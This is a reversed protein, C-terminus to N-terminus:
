LQELVATYVQAKATDKIITGFLFLRLSCGLKLVLNLFPRQWLPKHKSWIYQYGKFEGLIAHASSSSASGFHVITAAPVIGVDWHHNAARMCFEVDEGYMFINGDLSGVEDIVARKILM